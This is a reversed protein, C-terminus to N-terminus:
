RKDKAVYSCVDSFFSLKTKPNHQWQQISVGYLSERPYYRANFVYSRNEFRMLGVFTNPRNVVDEVQASATIRCNQTDIVNFWTLDVGTNSVDAGDQAAGAGYLILENNNLSDNDINTRYLRFGKRMVFSIGYEEREEPTMSDLNNANWIRPEISVSKTFKRPNCKDFHKQLDEVSDSVAFPVLVTVGNWSKLSDRLNSCFATNRDKSYHPIEIRASIEKLEKDWISLDSIRKLYAARICAFDKCSNRMVMWRRQERRVDDPTANGVLSKKYQTDLTEDLHSLESDTCITREVNTSARSCDFSAAHGHESMCFCVLVLVALSHRVKM